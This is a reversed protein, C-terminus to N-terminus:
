IIEHEKYQNVRHHKETIRAKFSEQNMDFINGISYVVDACEIFMAESNYVETEPNYSSAGFRLIKAIAVQLEGCEEM